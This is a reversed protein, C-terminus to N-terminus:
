SVCTVTSSPSSTTNTRTTAATLAVPTIGSPMAETRVVRYLRRSVEWSVDHNGPAIIINGRPVDFGSSVREFFRIGAAYEDDNAHESLDGSVVICHIEQIGLEDTLDAALQSFARDAQEETAIHIDSLHLGVTV